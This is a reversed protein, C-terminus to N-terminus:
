MGLLVNFRAVANSQAENEMANYNAVYDVAFGDISELPSTSYRMYQEIHFMEHLLWIWGGSNSLDPMQSFIMVNGLTVAHLNGFATYGANLFGPATLDPTNGISWRAAALVQFPVVRALVQVLNPDLSYSYTVYVKYADRMAAAVPMATLQNIGCQQTQLCQGLFRGSTFAIEYQVRQSATLLDYGRLWDGGLNRQIADRPVSMVFNHGIEVIQVTNQILRGQPAVYNGIVNQIVQNPPAGRLIDQTAQIPATIPATVVRGVDDLFGAQALGVFSLSLALGATSSLIIKM